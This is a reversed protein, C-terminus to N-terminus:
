NLPFIFLVSLDLTVDDILVKARGISIDMKKGLILTCLKKIKRYLKM